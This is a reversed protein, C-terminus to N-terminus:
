KEEDDVTIPGFAASIHAHVLESQPRRYRAALDFLNVDVARIMDSVTVVVDTTSVRDSAVPLAPGLEKEVRAAYLRVAASLVRQLGDDARSHQVGSSLAEEAARVFDAGPYDDSLPLEEEEPRTLM